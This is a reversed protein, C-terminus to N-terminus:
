GAQTAVSGVPQNLHAQFAAVTASSCSLTRSTPPPPPSSVPRSSFAPGLAHTPQLTSPLSISSYVLQCHCCCLVFTCGCYVELRRSEPELTVPLTSHHHPSRVSRRTPAPRVDLHLSCPLAPLCPVTSPPPLPLPLPSPLTVIGALPAAKKGLRGLAMTRLLYMHRHNITISAGPSHPLDLTCGEASAPQSCV